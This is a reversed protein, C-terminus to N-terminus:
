KPSSLMDAKNQKADWAGLEVLESETVIRMGPDHGEDVWGGEDHDYRYCTFKVDRFEIKGKEPLNAAEPITYSDYPGGYTPVMGLGPHKIWM